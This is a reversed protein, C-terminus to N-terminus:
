GVRHQREHDVYQTGHGEDDQQDHHDREGYQEDAGGQAHGAGNRWQDGATGGEEGAQHFGGQPFDVAADDFGGLRHTRVYPLDDEAGQQRFRKRADDGTNGHSGDGQDGVRGH